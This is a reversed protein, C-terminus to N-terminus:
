KPSALKIKAEAAELFGKLIAVRLQTLAEPTIETDPDDGPSDTEEEVQEDEDDSSDTDSVVQEVELGEDSEGTLYRRSLSTLGDDELLQAVTQMVGWLHQPATEEFRRLYSTLFPLLRPDKWRKALEILEMDGMVLGESELLANTLRQQQENTVLAALFKEPLKNSSADLPDGTAMKGAVQQAWEERLTSILLEFSGERRTVPDEALRVLWEVVDNPNSESNGVIAKLEELRRVYTELDSPSLHKAASSGYILDYSNQKEEGRAEENRQLFALVTQGEGLQRPQGGFSFHYVDLAPKHGDGKITQSVTLLTKFSSGHTVKEDTSSKGVQAVVIRDSELYLTRLPQSPIGMAGGFVLEKEMPVDFRRAEGQQLNVDRHKVLRYDKAKVEVIYTRPALGEFRFEGEDSTVQSLVDGLAESTLTVIAGRIAVGKEDSVTGAITSTGSGPAPSEKIHSSEVRSYTARASAQQANALAAAGPAIGIMASVVASAVPGPRWGLLRVPPLSDVTLVRDDIDRIMRACMQSRRSAVLAEAERRTMESLNYVYKRCESCYRIQDTGTMEDWDATCPSTIVLRDLLSKPTTM